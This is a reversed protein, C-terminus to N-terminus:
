KGILLPNETGILQRDRASYQRRASQEWIPNELHEFQSIEAPIAGTLQNNELELEIIKGELCNVGYWVCPSLNTLWGDSNEWHPGGTQEYLAALANLESESIGVYESRSLPTTTPVPPKMTKVLFAPSLDEGGSNIVTSYLSSSGVWYISGIGLVIGALALVVVM